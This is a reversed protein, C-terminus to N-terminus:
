IQKEVVVQKHLIPVAPLYCTWKRSINKTSHCLKFNSVFGCVTSSKLSALQKVWATAKKNTEANFQNTQWIQKKQFNSGLSFYAACDDGTEQRVSIVRQLKALTIFSTLFTSM